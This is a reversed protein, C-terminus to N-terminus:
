GIEVFRRDVTGAARLLALTVGDEENQSLLRFRHAALWLPQAVDSAAIAERRLIASLQGRFIRRWESEREQQAIVRELLALIERHQASRSFREALRRLGTFAAM